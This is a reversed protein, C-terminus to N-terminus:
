KKMCPHTSNQQPETNEKQQLNEAKFTKIINKNKVAFIVGSKM